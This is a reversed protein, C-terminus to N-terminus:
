RRRRSILPKKTTPSPTPTSPSTSPPAPTIPYCQSYWDNLSICVAGEVCTTPGTFAIGGCQGWLGAPSQGSAVSLAVAILAVVTKMSLLFSTQPFEAQILEWPLM